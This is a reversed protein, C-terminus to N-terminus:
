EVATFPLATSFFTAPFRERLNYFSTLHDIILEQAKEVDHEMLAEAIELHQRLHRMENELPNPHHLMMFRVRLSLEGQFKVLLENRSLTALMGHFETDFHRRQEKDGAEMADLCNQAITKLRIFDARSGFMSALKVGMTDLAIRLVGIDRVTNEGFEAVMAFRNPFIEILGENALRRMADRLPTRSIGLEQSIRVEPIREGPKLQGSLIMELLHEYAPHTHGNSTKSVTTRGCYLVFCAM